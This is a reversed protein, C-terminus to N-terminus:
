KSNIENNINLQTSWRTAYGQQQPRRRDGTETQKDRERFSKHQTKHKQINIHTGTHQHINEHRNNNLWRREPRSRDAPEFGAWPKDLVVRVLKSQFYTRSKGQSACRDAMRACHQTNLTSM